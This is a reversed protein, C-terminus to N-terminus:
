EVAARLREAETMRKRKKTGSQGASATVAAPPATWTELWTAVPRPVGTAVTTKQRPQRVKNMLDRYAKGPAADGVSLSQLSDNMPLVAKLLQVAEQGIMVQSMDISTLTSNQVLAACLAAFSELSKGSSFATKRLDSLGLSTLTTNTFLGEALHAIGAPGVHSSGLDLSSLVTENSGLLAGLSKVGADTLGEFNGGLDLHKLSRNIKLMTSLRKVGAAGMDAMSLSLSNLTKNVDLAEAIAFVGEDQIKLEQIALSQLVTNTSLAEALQVAAATRHNTRALTLSTLTENTALKSSFTKMDIYRSLHTGNWQNGNIHLEPGAQQKVVELFGGFTSTGAMAMRLNPHGGGDDDDNCDGKIWRHLSDRLACRDHESSSPHDDALQDAGLRRAMDRLQTSSKANLRIWLTRWGDGGAARSADARLEALESM